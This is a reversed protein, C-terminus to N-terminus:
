KNLLRTQAIAEAPSSSTAGFASAYILFANHIRDSLAICHSAEDEQALFRGRYLGLAKEALRHARELKGNKHLDDSQSLLTEFAWADVWCYRRDLTVKGNRLEIAEPRKLLKRLRHLTTDFSQHALDGDADPWLIDTIRQEKIGRGGLALITKLLALPKQQARRSFTVPNGNCFISFDGLSYIKVPWPWVDLHMPPIGDFLNRRCIVECAYEIEIDNELALILMQKTAEPYDCGSYAYGGEKAAKLSSRLSSLCLEEAGSHLAIKAELMLASPLFSRVDYQLCLTKAQQMHYQAETHNEIAHHASSLLLHAGAMSYRNGVSQACDLTLKSYHLAQIGDGQIAHLRASQGLYLVKAWNPWNIALPVLEDIRKRAELYNQHDILGVIVHLHFWMDEMHIGTEEAIKLAHSTSAVLQDVIGSLMFYQGEASAHVILTYPHPAAEPLKCFRKLQGLVLAAEHTSRHVLRDLFLFHIAHIKSMITEPMEPIHLAREKWTEASERNTGRLTSAAVMGSIIAAEISPDAITGIESSLCEIIDYWRDMLVFSDFQCAIAQIAGVASLIAGMKEQNAQFANFAEEFVAQASLPDFPFLANGKWYLLWPNGKLQEEPLANLWEALTLHRGQKVMAGIHRFIIESMGHWDAADKLLSIAAESLGAQELISAARRRLESLDEPAMTKLANTILFDRFLPHYEYVVDDDLHKMIFYNNRTIERLIEGASPNQTLEAAMSVTMRPFFATTMLFYQRVTAMQEFIETSFYAFIEETSHKEILFPSMKVKSATISLLTLGAAWGNSMRYLYAIMEQTNLEKHRGCAIIAGTEEETLRIDEWRLMEMQNGALLRIIADPPDTRSIIIMRMGPPIQSLAHRIIEQFGAAAHVEQYNDLVLASESKLRAFFKEFYRLTFVPLGHSYEPTFLPLATRTRPSAKKAAQAMYYFFSAPDEDGKDIQYWLCPIRRHELYSSVLTTKGSGAPASIWVVPIQRLLDLREFLRQRMHVNKAIPRSIKNM